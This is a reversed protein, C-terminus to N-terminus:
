SEKHFKKYQERRIVKYKMSSMLEEVSSLFKMNVSVIHKLIPTDPHHPFCMLKDDKTYITSHHKKYQMGELKRHICSVVNYRGVWWLDEFWQEETLTTIEGEEIDNLLWRYFNPVGYSNVGKKLIPFSNMMKVLVCGQWTSERLFNFAQKVDGIIIVDADMVYLWAGIPVLELYVNRKAVGGKWPIYKGGHKPCDVWILKDGCIREAIEKTRDTSQPFIHQYDAFAGDVIVVKDVHPVINSLSLGLTKESNYVLYCAYIKSSM